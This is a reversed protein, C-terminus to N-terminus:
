SGQKKNIFEEYSLRKMEFIDRVYTYLSGGLRGIPKLKYPDIVGAKMLEDSIHFLVIEGFVVTNPSEGIEIIRAVKCELNVPSEAIRPARVIESKVPTLGAVELESVQRPFDIACINMKEAIDETVINVVFDGTFEINRLTDKKSGDKKRDISVYIMPPKSSVGGFYSFPAANIIGEPGTSTIFAIPRPIIASIMLKYTQSKSLEEPKIKMGM